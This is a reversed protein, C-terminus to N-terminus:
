LLLSSSGLFSTHTFHYRMLDTTENLLQVNTSTLSM